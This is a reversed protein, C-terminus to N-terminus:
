RGRVPGRGAWGGRRATESVAGGQRATLRALAPTEPLETPCRPPFARTIETDTRGARVAGSAADQASCRARALTTAPSSGWQAEGAGLTSSGRSSSACSTSGSPFTGGPSGSRGIGRGAADFGVASGRRMAAGRGSGGGATADVGGGGAAATAAAGAGGSDVGSGDAGAGAGGGIADGRLSRTASAAVSGDVTLASSGAPGLAPGTTAGGGM